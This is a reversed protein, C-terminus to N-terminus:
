NQVEHLIWAFALHVPQEQWGTIFHHVLLSKSFAIITQKPRQSLLAPLSYISRSGPKVIILDTNPDFSSNRHKM